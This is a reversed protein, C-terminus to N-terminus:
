GRAPRRKKKAGGPRKAPQRNRAEWVLLPEPQVHRFRIDAGGPLLDYGGSWRGSRWAEVAAIREADTVIGGGPPEALMGSAWRQMLNAANQAPSLPAPNTRTHTRVEAAPAKGNETWALVRAALMNAIHRAPAPPLGRGGEECVDRVEGLATRLLSVHTASNEVAMPLGTFVALVDTPAEGRVVARAQTYLSQLQVLEGTSILRTDGIYGHKTTHQGLVRVDVADGKPTGAYRRRWAAVADVIWLPQGLDAYVVLREAHDWWAMGARAVTGGDAAGLVLPAFAHVPFPSEKRAYSDELAARLYELREAAGPAVGAPPTLLIVPVAVREPSPVNHVAARTNDTTMMDTM